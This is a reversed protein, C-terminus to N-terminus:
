DWKEIANVLGPLILSEMWRSCEAADVGDVRVPDFEASLFM